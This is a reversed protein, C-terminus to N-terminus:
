CSCVRKISYKASLEDVEKDFRLEMRFIMLMSVSTNLESLFMYEQDTREFSGLGEFTLVVLVV